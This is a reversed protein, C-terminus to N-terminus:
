CPFGHQSLGRGQCLPPQFQQGAAIGILADDAQRVQVAEEHLHLPQVAGLQAARRHDDAALGAPAPHHRGAAILRAGQPHAARQRHALGVPAHQVSALAGDLGAPAHEEEVVAEVAVVLEVAAHHLVDQAVAGRHEVWAADVLELEVDGAALPQEGAVVAADEPEGLVHAAPHALLHPQLQGDADPGVAEHGLHGAAVGLGVAHPAHQRLFYAREEAGWSM